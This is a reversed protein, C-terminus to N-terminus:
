TSSCYLGDVSEDLLPFYVVRPWTCSIRKSCQNTQEANARDPITLSDGWTSRLLLIRSAVHFKNFIMNHCWHLLAPEACQRGSGLLIFLPSFGFLIVYQSFVAPLIEYDASPSYVGAAAAPWPSKSNLISLKWNRAPSGLTSGLNVSHIAHWRNPRPHNVKREPQDAAVDPLFSVETLQETVAWTKWFRENQM